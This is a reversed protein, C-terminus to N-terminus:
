FVNLYPAEPCPKAPITTIPQRNSEIIKSTKELGLSEIISRTAWSQVQVLLAKDKEVVASLLARPSIESSEPPM